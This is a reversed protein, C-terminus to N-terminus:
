VVWGGGWDYNTGLAEIIEGKFDEPNTVQRRERAVVIMVVGIEMEINISAVKKDQITNMWSGSCAAAVASNM